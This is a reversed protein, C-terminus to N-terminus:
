LMFPYVMVFFFMEFRNLAPNDKEFTIFSQTKVRHCDCFPKHSHYKTAVPFPKFQPMLVCGVDDFMQLVAFHNPENCKPCVRARSGHRNDSEVLDKGNSRRVQRYARKDFRSPASASVVKGMVPVSRSVVSICLSEFNCICFLFNVYASDHQYQKKKFSYIIVILYHSNKSTRQLNFCSKRSM